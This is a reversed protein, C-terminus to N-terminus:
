LVSKLTSVMSSVTESRWMECGNMKLIRTETVDIETAALDLAHVAKAQEFEPIPPEFGVRLM